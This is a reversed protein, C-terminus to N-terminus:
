EAAESQETLQLYAARVSQQHATDSGAGDRSVVVSLVARALAMLAGTLAGDGAGASEIPVYLVADTWRVIPGDLKGLVAYTRCGRRQAFALARGVYLGEEAGCLGVVVDRENLDSLTAAQEMPDGSVAEATLGRQRLHRAAMEAVLVLAGESAFVVRRARAIGTAIMRLHAPPNHVTVQRLNASEQDIQSKFIAAPDSSDFAVPEYAAYLEQKVQARVDQLLDPYGPYGLRQAFRVVTTTDVDVAAALQAATMFAMEYYRGMVFDAVRRYSPSLKDHHDQIRQRYM